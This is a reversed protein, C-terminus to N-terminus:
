GEDEDTGRHQNELDRHIADVLDYATPSFPDYASAYLVLARFVDAPLYITNTVVVDNQTSLVLNFGDWEVFTSDDL